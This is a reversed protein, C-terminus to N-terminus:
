IIKLFFGSAKRESPSSRYRYRRFHHSAHSDACMIDNCECYKLLLVSSIQLNLFMSHSYASFLFSDFFAFVIRYLFCFFLFISVRHPNKMSLTHGLLGGFNAQLEILILQVSTSAAIRYGHWKYGQTVAYNYYDCIWTSDNSPSHACSQRCLVEYVYTSQATVFRMMESKRNMELNYDLQPETFAIIKPYLSFLYRLSSSAMLYFTYISHRM